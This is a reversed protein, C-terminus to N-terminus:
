FHNPIKVIEMKDYPLKKNNKADEACNPEEEVSINAFGNTPSLSYDGSVADHSPGDDLATNNLYVTPTVTTSNIKHICLSIVIYIICQLTTLRFKFAYRM